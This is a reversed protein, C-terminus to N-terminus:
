TLIFHMASFSICTDGNEQLHEYMYMTSEPAVDNHTRHRPISMDQSYEYRSCGKYIYINAHELGLRVSTHYITLRCFLQYTFM